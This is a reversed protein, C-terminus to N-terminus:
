CHVCLHIVSNRGYLSTMLGFGFIGTGIIPMIWHLKAAASWGFWSFLLSCSAPLSARHIVYLLGIPTFFSGVILTPIRMEPTGVGNNKAQYYAYVRKSFWANFASAILFGVGLGLYALGSAGIGFGYTRTFLDSSALMLILTSFLTSECTGSFTAFMLYFIGYILAMYLSLIFCIFSRTLLIIPRSLNMWLHEWRSLQAASGLHRRANMRKREDDSALDRRMRLVPAYTEDMIPVSLVALLGSLAALVKTPHANYGSYSTSWM